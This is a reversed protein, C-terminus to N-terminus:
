DHNEVEKIDSIELMIDAVFKGDVIDFSATGNYKEALRKIIRSGYGHRKADDKTTSLSLIDKRDRSGSVPNETHIFLYSGNNYIKLLIRPKEADSTECAEVANNLLNMLISFLDNEEIPLRSRVAIKSEFEIGTNKIKSLTINTAVNIIQNNSSVFDMQEIEGTNRDCYEKLKDYDKNAVLMGIYSLKNKMEHRLMHMEQLNQQGINLVEKEDELRQQVQRLEVNADHEIILRCFIFYVCLEIVLIGFSTFDIKGVEGNYSYANLALGIGCSILIIALFYGNIRYHEPHMLKLYLIVALSFLAKLILWVPSGIQFYNIFPSGYSASIFICSWVIRIPLNYDRFIFILITRYIIANIVSLDLDGFLLKVLTNEVLLIAWALLCKLVLFIICKPKFVIKSLLLTTSAASIAGSWRIEGVFITIIEHWM